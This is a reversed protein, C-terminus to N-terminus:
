QDRLKELEDPISRSSDISKARLFDELAEQRRAVARYLDGRLDYSYANDPNILIAANFDNLAEDYRGLRMFTHGRYRLIQDNEPKLRIVESFDALAAELNGIHRYTGGRNAFALAFDPDIAIAKGYDDIAEAYRGLEEYSFGRNNYATKLRDKRKTGSKIVRTCARIATEGDAEHCTRHSQSWAATMGLALLFVLAVSVAVVKRFVQKM